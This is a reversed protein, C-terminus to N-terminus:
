IGDIHQIVRHQFPFRFEIIRELWTGSCANERIKNLAIEASPVNAWFTRAHWRRSQFMDWVSINVLARKVATDSIAAKRRYPVGHMDLDRQLFYVCETEAMDVGEIIVVNGDPLQCQFLTAYSLTPSPNM